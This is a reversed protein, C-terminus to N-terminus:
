NITNSNKGSIPHFPCKLLRILLHGSGPFVDAIFTEKKGRKGERRGEKGEKRGEGGRQKM